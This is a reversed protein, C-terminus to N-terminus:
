LVQVKTKDKKHLIEYLISFRYQLDGSPATAKLPRCSLYNNQTEQIYAFFLCVFLFVNEVWDMFCKGVKGSIDPHRQGQSPCSM